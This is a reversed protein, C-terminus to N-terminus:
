FLLGDHDEGVKPLRSSPQTTTRNAEHIGQFRLLDVFGPLAASQEPYPGLSSVGRIRSKASPSQGKSWNKTSPYM